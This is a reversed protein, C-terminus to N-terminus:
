GHFRYDSYHGTTVQLRCVQLVATTIQLYRYYQLLIIKCPRLSALTIM